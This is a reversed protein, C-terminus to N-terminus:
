HRSPTDSTMKSGRQRERVVPIWFSRRRGPVVPGRTREGHGAASTADSLVTIHFGFKKQLLKGFSNADNIASKLNPLSHYNNNGILLAYYKGNLKKDNGLLTSQKAKKSSFKTPNIKGLSETTNTIDIMSIVNKSQILKVGM